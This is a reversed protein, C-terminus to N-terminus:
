QPKALPTPFGAPLWSELLLGDGTLYQICTISATIAIDILVVLDQPKLDHWTHGVTMGSFQETVVYLKGIKKFEHALEKLLFRLSKM